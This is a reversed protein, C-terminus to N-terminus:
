RRAHKKFDKSAMVMEEVYASINGHTKLFDRVQPLVRLVLNVKPNEAHPRGRGRKQPAAVVPSASLKKIIELLYADRDKDTMGRLSSLREILDANVDKAM